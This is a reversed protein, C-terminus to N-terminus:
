RRQAEGASTVSQGGGALAELALDEEARRGMWHHHSTDHPHFTSPRLNRSADRTGVPQVRRVKFSSESPAWRVVSSCSSTECRLSAPRALVVVKSTHRTLGSRAGAGLCTRWCPCVVAVSPYSE